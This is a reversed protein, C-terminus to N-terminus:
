TSNITSFLLLKSAIDDGSVVNEDIITFYGIGPLVMNKLTECGVVTANILCVRSRELETQGHNGWM